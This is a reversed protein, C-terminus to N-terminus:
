TEDFGPLPFEKAFTEVKEKLSGIKKSFNEDMILERFDQLSPGPFIFSYVQKIIATTLVGRDTSKGTNEQAEVAIKVGQDLYDIVQVFDEEKFDRSTM